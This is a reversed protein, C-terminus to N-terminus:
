KTVVGRNKPSFSGILLIQLGSIVEGVLEPIQTDPFRIRVDTCSGVQPLFGGTGAALGDCRLNPILDSATLRPLGRILPTLTHITKLQKYIGHKGDDTRQSDGTYNAIHDCRVQVLLVAVISGEASRGSVQLLSDAAGQCRASVWDM